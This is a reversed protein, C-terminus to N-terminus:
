GEKLIEFPDTPLLILHRKGAQMAADRCGQETWGRDHHEVTCTGGDQHCGVAAMVEEVTMPDWDVYIQRVAVSVSEVTGTAGIPIPAPDPVTGDGTMQLGVMRVRQGEQPYVRLLEAMAGDGTHCHEDDTHAHVLTRDIYKLPERCIACKM